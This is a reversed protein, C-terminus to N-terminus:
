ALRQARWRARVPLNSCWLRVGSRARSSLQGPDALDEGLAVDARAVHDRHPQVRGPVAREQQVLAEADGADRGPATGAAGPDAADVEAAASRGAWAAPRGLEAFQRRSRTGHGAAVPSPEALSDAVRRLSRRGPLALQAADSTRAHCPARAFSARTQGALSCCRLWTGRM